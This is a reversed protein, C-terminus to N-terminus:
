DPWIEAIHVQVEPFLRPRLLGEALNSQRRLQGAELYLVEVTRPGPNDAWVEPVGLSAYNALKMADEVEPMRLWEGYTVTKSNPLSAM